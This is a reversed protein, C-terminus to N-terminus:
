LAGLNVIGDLDALPVGELVRSVGVRLREGENAEEELGAAAAHNGRERAWAALKRALAANEALSRAARKLTQNRVASHEVWLEAASFADAIRCEFRLSDGDRITWLASGCQPCMFGSAEDDRADPAESV